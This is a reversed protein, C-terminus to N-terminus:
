YRIHNRKYGYSQNKYLSFKKYGIYLQKWSGIVGKKKRPVDCLLTM